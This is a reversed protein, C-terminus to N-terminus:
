NTDSSQAKAPGAGDCDLHIVVGNEAPEVCDSIDFNAYSRVRSAFSSAVAHQPVEVVPYSTVM